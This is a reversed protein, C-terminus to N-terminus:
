RGWFISGTNESLRELFGTLGGSSDGSLRAQAVQVAQVGELVVGNQLLEAHVPIVRYTYVVGDLAKTDAYYLTEGATGYLETLVLSEGVADRQVRYVATDAPQIVLLPYGSDSRGVSFRNPTRPPTWVDSKKSPRNEAAFVETYRYAKPTLDVALMPEGRWKIAQKDIELRVIGDPVTFQPKTKGSYLKQFYNKAMLATNDGGSVWGQLKHSSDPQDFGMWFACAIESNYCAMWIDRNGGGTM